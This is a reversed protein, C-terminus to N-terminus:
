VRYMELSFRYAKTKQHSNYKICQLISFISKLKYYNSILSTFYLTDVLIIYLYKLFFFILPKLTYYQASIKTTLCQFLNIFFSQQSLGLKIPIGGNYFVSYKFPKSNIVNSNYSCTTFILSNYFIPKQNSYSIVAISSPSKELSSLMCFLGLYQSQWFHLAQISM